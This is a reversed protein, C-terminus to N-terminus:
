IGLACDFTNLLKFFQIKYSMDEKIYKDAFTKAMKNHLQNFSCNISLKCFGASLPFETEFM